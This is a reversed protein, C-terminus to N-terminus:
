ASLLFPFAISEPQLAAITKPMVEGFIIMIITM